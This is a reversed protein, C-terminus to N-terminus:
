LWYPAAGSTEPLHRSRWSASQQCRVTLLGVGALPAESHGDTPFRCEKPPALQAPLERWRARHGHQPRDRERCLPVNLGSLKPADLAVHLYEAKVSWRGDLKFESGAGVTWGTVTENSRVLGLINGRMESWAVGGTVFLLTRPEILYGVRGRLTALWESRVSCLGGCVGADVESSTGSWDGEIGYVWRGTQVNYGVSGGYIVGSGDTSPLTLPGFSAGAQQNVYGVSAGVYLGTWTFTPGDYPGSAKASGAFALTAGALVAARFTSRVM